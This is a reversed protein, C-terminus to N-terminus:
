KAMSAIMHEVDAETLPGRIVAEVIYVVGGSQWDYTTLPPGATRVMRTVKLGNITLPFPPIRQAQAFTVHYLGDSNPTPLAALPTAATSTASPTTQAVSTPSAARTAVTGSGASGSTGTTGCACLLVLAVATCALTRWKAVCARSRLLFCTCWSKLM